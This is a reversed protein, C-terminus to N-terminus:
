PKLLWTFFTVKPLLCANKRPNGHQKLVSEMLELGRLTKTVRARKIERNKRSLLEACKKGEKREAERQVV